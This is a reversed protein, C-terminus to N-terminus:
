IDIYISESASASFICVLTGDDLLIPSLCLSLYLEKKTAYTVPSVARSLIEPWDSLLFKDWVIDSYAASKFGKSIVAFRSAEMPSTLSLIESM